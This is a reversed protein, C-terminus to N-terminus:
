RRRRAFPRILVMLLAALGAWITKVIEAPGWNMPEGELTYGAARGTGAAIPQGSGILILLGLVISVLSLVAIPQLDLGTRALVTGLV